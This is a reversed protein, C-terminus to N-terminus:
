SPIFSHIGIIMGTSGMLITEINKEMGELGQARFRITTEM